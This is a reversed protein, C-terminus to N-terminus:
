HNRITLPRMMDHDEHELKHCHWVYKGAFPEFRMIIRVTERANVTVTDKLGFDTPLPQKLNGNSDRRELVLFDVLHLHIPHGGDTINELEWIEVSDLLPAETVPDDWEKGDLLLMPRGFEDQTEVLTLHRVKKVETLPIHDINSLIAPVQSNDKGNLPKTVKFAMVDGTPNGLEFQNQLIITECQLKSFDVVIDIREASGVLLSQVEIPRELLGGDTGILLFSQSNSLQFQYARSNSANVIRFRYKRPEVNLFPWVKGNVVITEGFFGPVISPFPLDPSPNSPQAPYFLSGDPNFSKDQVILPVEYKGKPLPLAKEEEDRILYLGALGAYVNLRTIGLAHDHYWLTTARERNPYKYTKTVFEPGTQGFNKTFWAEPHGDSAPTSPSGHLHVVTRVEPNHSAGHITTDIPLFHNKPLENKWKVYIPKDKKVEFTPGPVSGNYAWVKTRPLNQHFQHRTQIMSVVYPNNKTTKRSKIVPPIPLRDVFKKFQM